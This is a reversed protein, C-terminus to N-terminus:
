VETVVCDRFCKECTWGGETYDDVNDCECQDCNCRVAVLEEYTSTGSEFEPEGVISKCSCFDSFEYNRLVEEIDNTKIIFVQELSLRYTKAM